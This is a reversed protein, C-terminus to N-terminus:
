KILGVRLSLAGEHKGVGWSMAKFPMQVATPAQATFAGLDFYMLMSDGRQKSADLVEAFGGSIELAGGKGRAADIVAGIAKGDADATAMAALKDFTAFYMSQSTSAAQAVAAAQDPPLASTDVKSEYLDVTVGDHTLADPKHSSVFKMGMMEMGTGDTLKLLERWATRMAEPDNVGWLAQLQMSPAKGEVVSMSMNMAFGGDFNDLWPKFMDRLQDASIAPYMPAMVAVGFNLLADRAGGARMDGSMVITGGGAPLKSLLAHQSPVQAEIFSALSSGAIPYIRVILDASGPGTGLSLVMRDTQEGLSVLGKFYNTMMQGVGENGGLLAMSAAMNKEIEGAFTGILLKPYIIIESHDPYKTLNTFAFDKAANVVGEPGILLLNDRQEVAHGAAKADATLAAADKAEVLMALPEPHSAPNLIVFSLPGDLKASKAIDFGAAGELATPLQMKLMASAGPQMSDIVAAVDTMNTGSPLQVTAIVEGVEAIAPSDTPNAVPGSPLPSKSDSDGSKGKSDAPKSDAQKAPEDKNCASGLTLAGLLALPALRHRNRLFSRNVPPLM